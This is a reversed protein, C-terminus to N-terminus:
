RRNPRIVGFRGFVSSADGTEKGDPNSRIRSKDPANEYEEANFDEFIADWKAQSIGGDTTQFDAKAAGRALKDGSGKMAM